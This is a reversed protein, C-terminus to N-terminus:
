NLLIVSKGRANRRPRIPGSISGLLQASETAQVTKASSHAVCRAEIATPCRRQPRSVPAIPIASFRIDEEVTTPAISSADAATPCATAVSIESPATRLRPPVSEVSRPSYDPPFDSTDFPHSCGMSEKRFARYLFHEWPEAPPYASPKAAPRAAATPALVGPATELPGLPQDVTSPDICRFEFPGDGFVARQMSSHPLRAETNPIGRFKCVYDEPIPRITPGSFGEIDVGNIIPVM